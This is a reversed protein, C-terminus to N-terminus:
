GNWSWLLRARSTGTFAPTSNRRTCSPYLWFPYGRCHSTLHYPAESDSPNKVFFAYYVFIFAVALGELPKTGIGLGLATMAFCLSQGAAGVILLKRRGLRDILLTGLGTWFMWQMSDVASLILSMRDSFGFSRKMIIPLYYAVVNVGGFQQMFNVGVGLAIRRFTQQPGNSFITRWGPKQSEMEHAVTTEISQLSTLVEDDELRKDLVRAIVEKAAPSRSRVCLWRPSEVLFPVMSAALIALFSQFALPFRWSIQQYPSYTFGFNIWNALVFGFVLHTLQITILKGRDEQKCTESQWMPVTTTNMGVGLGAVIRGVILHPLTFAMSQLIGGITLFASALLVSRRRGLRDGTYMSLFAGAVCGLVYTSVIQGQMTTNPHDFQKQFTPNSLIGGFVGQDYGFLMFSVGCCATIGITLGRGRLSTFSFMINPPIPLTMTLLKIITTRSTYPARQKSIDSKYGHLPSPFTLKSIHEETLSSKPSCSPPSGLYDDYYLSPSLLTRPRHQRSAALHHWSQM